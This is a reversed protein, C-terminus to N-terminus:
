ENLMTLIHVTVCYCPHLTLLLLLFLLLLLSWFFFFFFFCLILFTCLFTTQTFKHSPRKASTINISMEFALIPLFDTHCLRGLQQIGAYYKFKVIEQQEREYNATREIMWSLIFGWKWFVVKIFGANGSSPTSVVQGYYMALVTTVHHWSVHLLM